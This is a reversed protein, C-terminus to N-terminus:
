STDVAEPEGAEHPQPSFLPVAVVVPRALQRRREATMEWPLFSSLASPSKGGNDACAQLFATLWQRPNLDWLLVPQLVSFLLAALQASWVSGSGYYNKRGTVPLRLAREAANNDLAVAPREVFVTLGAWHRHLSTLVKKQARHLAAERLQEECRAKMESLHTTLARQREGFAPPQEEVAVPDDWVELRAANLRYLARLDEIWAGM